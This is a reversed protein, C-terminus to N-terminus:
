ASKGTDVFTEPVAQRARMSERLATLLQEDDWGDLV